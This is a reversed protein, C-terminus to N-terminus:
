LYGRCFHLFFDTSLKIQIEILSISQRMMYRWFALTRHLSLEQLDQNSILTRYNESKDAAPNIWNGFRQPMEKLLLRSLYLEMARGMAFDTSIDNIVGELTFFSKRFLILESPFVVGELTMTELLLFSRKLLDCCRYEESALLKKIREILHDRNMGDREMVVALSEIVDYLTRSDNKMIGLMLEMVQVRQTKSLHAALTWDLLALDFRDPDDNKIILINGAHPDGHFLAQEKGAFLPVCLIAEFILKALTTRQQRTPRIDAITMGDIFEMATM